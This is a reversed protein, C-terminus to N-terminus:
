SKNKYKKKAYIKCIYRIILAALLIGTAAGASDICVDRIAPGRGDSFLQHIEDSSAYIVCFVFSIIIYKKRFFAWSTWCSFIGLAFFEMFHAIKRIIFGYKAIESRTVEDVPINRIFAILHKLFSRSLDVSENGNQTSLMFIAVACLVTMLLPVAKVIINHKSKINLSGKM